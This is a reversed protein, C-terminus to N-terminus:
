SSSDFFRFSLRLSSPPGVKNEWYLGLIGAVICNLQVLSYYILSRRESYLCRQLAFGNKKYRRTLFSFSQEKYM